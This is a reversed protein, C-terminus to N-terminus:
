YFQSFLERRNKSSSNSSIPNETASVLSKDFPNGVGNTADEKYRPEQKADFFPNFTIYVGLNKNTTFLPDLDRM